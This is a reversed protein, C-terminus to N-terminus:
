GVLVVAETEVSLKFQERPCAGMSGGVDVCVCVCACEMWHHMVAVLFICSWFPPSNCILSCNNALYIFLHLLPTDTM